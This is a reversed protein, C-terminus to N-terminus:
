IPLNISHYISLYTSLNISQYISQYISLYTSLYISLTIYQYIPLYISLNIFINISQYTPLYTSLYISLDLYYKWGGESEKPDRGIKAGSRQHSAGDIRPAKICLLPQHEPPQLFLSLPCIAVFNSLYIIVSSSDMTNKQSCLINLAVM